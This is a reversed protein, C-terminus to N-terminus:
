PWHMGTTDGDFGARSPPAGGTAPQWGPVYDIPATNIKPTGESGGGTADPDVLIVTPDPGGRKPPPSSTDIPDDFPGGNPSMPHKLRNFRSELEAATPPVVAGSGGADPDTMEKGKTKGTWTVTVTTGLAPVSVGDALIKIIPVNEKVKAFAATGANQSPDKPESTTAGTGAGSMAPTTGSSGPDTPTLSPKDDKLPADAPPDKATTSTGSGKTTGGDDGDAYLTWNPSRGFGLTPGGSSPATGAGGLGFSGAATGASSGLVDGALGLMSVLGSLQAAMQSLVGNHGKSGIDGLANLADSITTDMHGGAGGSLTGNAWDALISGFADGTVLPNKLGSVTGPRDPLGVPVGGLETLYVSGTLEYGYKEAFANPDDRRVIGTVLGRGNVIYMFDDGAKQSSLRVPIAGVGYVYTRALTGDEYEEALLSGVWVYTFEQTAGTADTVVKRTLRGLPDYFYEITQKLHRRDDYCEVKTLRNEDDYTYLCFGSDASAKHVCNGNRDYTFAYRGFRRYRNRADFTGASQAIVNGRGDLDTRTRWRGEPTHEYITELEFVSGENAVDEVGYQARVPRRADDFVYREGFSTGGALQIEQRLNGAADYGYRYGDVLADSDTTRYEISTLRQQDDYDLTAILVDEFRISSLLDDDRYTFAAIATGDANSVSTVRRAADFTRRLELGGPYVLKTLNGAADHGFRVTRDGHTETEVRSLSDFTRRLTEHGEAAVLRGAADYTYRRTEGASDITEVLRGVADYRHSRERGNADVVRAVNGLADYSVRASAGSPYVVSVQRDLEDYKYVTRHGAADVDAALRNNDDSAYERVVAQAPGETGPLPVAYAHGTSRGLADHTHAVELGSPGVYRVLAGLANYEFREPAREGVRQLELRDAADYSRRLVTPARDEDTSFALETLSGNEDYSLVVSRGTTDGIATVRGCGDHKYEVVEGSELWVKGPRGNEAYEVITTVVGKAGDWGSAGTPEGSAAERWARDIRCVRSWEDFRYSAEMVAHEGDIVSVATVNGADDFVQRKTTGVPDTFGVYREFADYLHEATNGEGDTATRPSGDLTYTFREVVGEPAGAASRKEIVLNREDYIWETVNGLPQIQRVLRDAEDHVFTEHVVKDGGVLRRGRVFRLEDYEHQERLMSPRSQARGTARDAELRDFTQVVEVEDYNADYTCEVRYEFPPRSVFSEVLGMANYTRRAAAGKGDVVATCNGVEDYAYENILKVGDADSVIRALLGSSDIGEVPHYALETVSGDIEIRRVLQGWADHELRVQQVRQTTAVGGGAEGVPQITVRPFTAALLNGREDYDFTTRYGLPDIYATVLRLARSYEFRTVIAPRGPTDGPRPLQTVELLNGRNRPDVDHDAYAWRTERGSPSRRQVLEGAANFRSETVLGVSGKAKRVDEPSFADARVYLTSRTAHGDKDHELDVIGGSKLHCRTRHGADYELVYEGRGHLQRVIRGADDYTNVLYTQGKADTLSALRREADYGYRLSTGEPFDRTAPRLVEVLLGDADYAFHWVRGAHDSVERWLGGRVSIAVEHLLTDVIRISEIGYSFRLENGNRDAVSLMQGGLDPSRFRTHGGLRDDLVVEDDREHLVAYCGPPPAYAGAAERAFRHVSGTGDHYLLGDGDRVVRRAFNCSWGVGLGGVSGALSSRYSRVLALDIGRGPLRLDRAVAGFEGSHSYVSAAVFSANRIPPQQM